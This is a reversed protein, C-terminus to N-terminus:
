IYVWLVLNPSYPLHSVTWICANNRHLLIERVKKRPRKKLFPHDNKVLSQPLASSYCYLKLISHASVSFGNMLFIMMMVKGASCVFRARKPVPLTSTKWPSSEQKSELNYHFMWSENVTIVNPFEAEGKGQFRTCLNNYVAVRFRSCLKNYVSFRHAMQEPALLHPVRSCSLM